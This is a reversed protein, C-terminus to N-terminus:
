ANLVELWEIKTNTNTMCIEFQPPLPISSINLDNLLERVSSKNIKIDTQKIFVPLPYNEFYAGNDQSLLYNVMEPTLLPMDVPIFFVGDYSKLVSLINNIAHAPGKHLAIDPISKYENFDGSVYVDQLNSQKLIEVMHNLLITGKYNLLAKNEGMRSSKGGALVVGAINM